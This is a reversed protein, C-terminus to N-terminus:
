QYSEPNNPWFAGNTEDYLWGGLSGVVGTPKQGPAAVPTVKKSGDYPNMPPELVYPGCPFQPGAVGIQGASNTSATIQPLANNTIAPYRNLHQARYLELQAEMVHLNHTLSSRKADDATTLYRPIIAGALVAMIVVVLLVEILTFGPRCHRRIM